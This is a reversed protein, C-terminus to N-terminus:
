IRQTHRLNQEILHNFLKKESDTTYTKDNKIKSDSQMDVKIEDNDQKDDDHEYNDHEYNDHEYNDHESDDHINKSEINWKIDESEDSEDYVCYLPRDIHKTQALNEEHCEPFNYSNTKMMTTYNSNPIKNIGM